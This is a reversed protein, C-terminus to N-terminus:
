HTSAASAIRAVRAVVGSIVPSKLTWYKGFSMAGSGNTPWGGPAISALSNKPRRLIQIPKQLKIPPLLPPCYTIHGTRPARHTIYTEEGKRRFFISPHLPLHGRPGQRGKVSFDPWDNGKRETQTPGLTKVISDWHLVKISITKFSSNKYRKKALTISNAIPKRFYKTAPTIFFINNWNIM